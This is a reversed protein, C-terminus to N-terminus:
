AHPASAKPRRPLRGLFFLTTMLDLAHFTGGTIAAATASVPNLMRSECALWVLYSCLAPFLLAASLTGPSYSRTWLSATLHFAANFVMPAVQFAILLFITSPSPWISITAASLLAAAAGASHVRRWHSDTYFPSIHCRAWKAFGPLEELFHVAVCAPFLWVAQDIPLHAVRLAPLISM